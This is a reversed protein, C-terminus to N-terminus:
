HPLSPSPRSEQGDGSPAAVASDVGNVLAREIVQDVRNVLTFTMEDRVEAGVEELDQAHRGVVHGDYHHRGCCFDEGFQLTAKRLCSNVDNVMSMACVVQLPRKRPKSPRLRGAVSKGIWSLAVVLSEILLDVMQLVEKFADRVYTQAANGAPRFDRTSGTM